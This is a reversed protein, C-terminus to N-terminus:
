LQLFFFYVRFSSIKYQTCSSFLSLCLFDPLIRRTLVEFFLPLFLFFTSAALPGSWFFGLFLSSQNKQLFDPCMFFSHVFYWAQRALFPINKVKTQESTLKAEIGLFVQHNSKPAVACMLTRHLTAQSVSLWTITFSVDKHTISLRYFNLYYSM